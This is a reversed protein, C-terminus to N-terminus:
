KKMLHNVANGMILINGLIYLYLMLIVMSALSGYVLSYRVSYDVLASFVMGVLVMACSAALAGPLLPNKSGRPSTLRYVGLLLMLLLALLIIFRLWSWDWPVPVYRSLISLFWEGTVIVVVAFYM